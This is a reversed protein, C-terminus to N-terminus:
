WAGYGLLLLVRHHVMQNSERLFGTESSSLLAGHVINTRTKQGGCGCTWVCASVFYIYLVCFIKSADINLESVFNRLSTTTIFYKGGCLMLVEALFSTHM